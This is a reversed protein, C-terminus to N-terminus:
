MYSLNYKEMWTFLAYMLLLETFSDQKYPGCHHTSM